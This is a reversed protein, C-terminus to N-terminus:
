GERLYDVRYSRPLPTVNNEAAWADWKRALTDVLKPQKAALDEMKTRDKEMDYLGWPQGRLATAKYRNERVARHGEHEFYLTRPPMRAGRLAPILSTGAMPFIERSGIREPYSVGAAETITPMIDILHVPTNEIVGRRGILEPWHVICPDSIGGENTYHKYLRWPTNSANAWGSGASHFTGPGGMKELDGGRHLINTPSSSGDFGSPDWEACAGNDSLFVILTNDLEQHSRLDALLRGVNQDMRDVMAAYIAMRRALDLRRDEPLSDWAPNERAETQQYGWYGSRPTLKTRAAVLKLKKM